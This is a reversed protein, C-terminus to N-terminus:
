SAEGSPANRDPRYGVREALLRAAELLLGQEDPRAMDLAAHWDQTLRATPHADPRILTHALQNLAQLGRRLTPNLLRTCDPCLPQGDTDALHVLDPMADRECRHCWARRSGHRIAARVPEFPGRYDAPETPTRPTVFGNTM